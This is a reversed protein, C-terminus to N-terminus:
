ISYDTTLKSYGSNYRGNTLFKKPLFTGEDEFKISLTRILEFSLLAHKIKKRSNQRVLEMRLPRM